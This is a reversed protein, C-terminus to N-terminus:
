SLYPAILHNGFIYMYLCDAIRLLIVLSKRTEAMLLFFDLKFRLRALNSLGIKAATPQTLNWM